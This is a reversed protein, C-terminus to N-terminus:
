CHWPGSVRMLKQLTRKAGFERLIKNTKRISKNLYVKLKNAENKSRRVGYCVGESDVVVWVQIVPNM